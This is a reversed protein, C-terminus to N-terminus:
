IKRGFWSHRDKRDKRYYQNLGLLKGIIKGMIFLLILGAGLKLLLTSKEM